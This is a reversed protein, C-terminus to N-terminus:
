GRLLRDLYVAVGDKDNSPATDDAAEKVQDLANDVAVGLGCRIMPEIDDNDDGFFVAEEAPIGDHELMRRIGNWKTAESGMFQLLKRDAVTCYVGAPLQVSIRDAPVEPHSALIKYIKRRGPLSGIDGIVNPHWVPIDTNAYLGDEAEVSIVTGATGCLQALIAAASEASVANETVAGPTITRAGNLTTVSRFGIMERYETIAREPRATAAFLYAGAAQWVRLVGLTYESVSKDTRLLTRDLDAIVARYPLGTKGNM